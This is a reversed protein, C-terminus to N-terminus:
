KQLKQGKMKSTRKCFSATLIGNEQELHFAITQIAAEELGGGRM